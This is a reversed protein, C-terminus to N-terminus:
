LFCVGLDIDLGFMVRLLNRQELLGRRPASIHGLQGMVGGHRAGSVQLEQSAQAGESPRLPLPRWNRVDSLLPHDATGPSIPPLM